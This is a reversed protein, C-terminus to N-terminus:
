LHAIPLCRQQWFWFGGTEFLFLSVILICSLLRAYVRLFYVFDIPDISQQSVATTSVNASATDILSVFSVSNNFSLYALTIAGRGGTGGSPLGFLGVVAGAVSYSTLVDGSQGLGGFMSAVVTGNSLGALTSATAVANVKTVTFVTASLTVFAVTGNGFGFMAEETQGTGVMDGIFIVFEGFGNGANGITVPSSLTATLTSNAVHLLSCDTTTATTHCIVATILLFQLLLCHTFLRLRTRAATAACNSMLPPARSGYGLVLVRDFVSIACGRDKHATVANKLYHVIAPTHVNPPHAISRLLAHQDAAVVSETDCQSAIRLVLECCQSTLVTGMIFSM